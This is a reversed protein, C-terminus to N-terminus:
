YQVVVTCNVFIMFYSFIKFHYQTTFLICLTGSAVSSPMEKIIRVGKQAYITAVELM